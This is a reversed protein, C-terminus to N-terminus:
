RDHDDVEGFKNDGEEVLDIVEDLVHEYDHVVDFDDLRSGRVSGMLTGEKFTTTESEIAPPHIRQRGLQYTRSRATLRRISNSGGHAVKGVLTVPDSM